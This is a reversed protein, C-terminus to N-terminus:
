ALYKKITATMSKPKKECIDKLYKEFTQKEEDTARATYLPWLFSTSKTIGLKQAVADTLADVLAPDLVPKTAATPEPAPSSQRCPLLSKLGILVEMAESAIRKLHDKIHDLTYSDLHWELSQCLESFRLYFVLAYAGRKRVDTMREIWSYVDSVCLCEGGGLHSRLDRCIYEEDPVNGDPYYDSIHQGLYIM